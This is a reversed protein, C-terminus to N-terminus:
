RYVHGVHPYIPDDVGVRLPPGGTVSASAEEMCALTATKVEEIGDIPAEILLADHVPCCVSIGREVALCVAVRMMEGGASQMPFNSMSRSNDDRDIHWRWGFLTELERHSMAHHIACSRWHWFTEYTRKHARLLGKAKAPLMRGQKAVTRPGAGYLVGLGTAM